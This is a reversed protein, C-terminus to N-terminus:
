LIEAVGRQRKRKRHYSIAVYRPVRDATSHGVKQKLKQRAEALESELKKVRSQLDSNEAVLGGVVQDLNQDFYCKAGSNLRQIYLHM